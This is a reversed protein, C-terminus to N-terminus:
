LLILFQFYHPSFSLSILVCIIITCVKTSLFQRVALEQNLRSILDETDAKATELRQKLMDIVRKLKYREESQFVIALDKQTETNAGVASYMNGRTEDHIEISGNNVLDPEGPISVESDRVHTIDSEIAETQFKRDSGDLRQFRVGSSIGEGTITGTEAAGATRSLFELKEQFPSKDLLGYETILEHWDTVNEESTSNRSVLNKLSAEGHKLTSANSTEDASDSVHDITVSSSGPVDSSTNPLLSLVDGSTDETEQYEDNFDSSLM